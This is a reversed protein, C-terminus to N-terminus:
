TDFIEWIVSPTVSCMMQSASAANTTVNKKATVLYM